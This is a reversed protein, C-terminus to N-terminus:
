ETYSVEGEGITANLILALRQAAKQWQQRIILWSREAFEEDIVPSGPYAYNGALAHSEDTWIALDGLNWAGEADSCTSDACPKEWSDGPGLRDRILARDWFQHLNWSEGRFKVSVYNAGRDDRYGSHLPQHLDGVLHCLWAFAQWRRRAELGPRSLADAHKLIAETVCRGDPCDRQREYNKANRPINVYHDPASAEWEPEERVTDPWFCAEGVAKEPDEQLILALKAAATEDLMSLATKGVVRHGEPGWASVTAPHTCLVGITFFILILSTRM